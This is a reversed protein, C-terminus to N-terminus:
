DSDEEVRARKSSRNEEAEQLGYRKSGAKGGTAEHIMESINFPDDTDKEFQVPGEGRQM